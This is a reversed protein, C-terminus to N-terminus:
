CFIRLIYYDRPVPEIKLCYGWHLYCPSGQKLRQVFCCFSPVQSNAQKKFLSGTLWFGHRAYIPGTGDIEDPHKATVSQAAPVFKAIYPSCLLM